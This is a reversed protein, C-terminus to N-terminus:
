LVTLLRMSIVALLYMNEQQQLRYACSGILWDRHCRIQFHLIYLFWLCYQSLMSYWSIKVRSIWLWIVRDQGQRDCSLAGTCKFQQLRSKIKLNCGVIGDCTLTYLIAHRHGGCHPHLGFKLHSYVEVTMMVM